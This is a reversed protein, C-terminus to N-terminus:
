AMGLHRLLLRGQPLVRLGPAAFLWFEFAVYPLAIAIGALLLVRLLTCAGLPTRAVVAMRQTPLVRSSCPVTYEGGYTMAAM